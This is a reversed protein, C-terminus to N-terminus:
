FIVNYGLGARIEGTELVLDGLTTVPWHLHHPQWLRGAALALLYPWVCDDGRPGNCVIGFKKLGLL